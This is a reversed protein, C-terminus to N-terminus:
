FEDTQMAELALRKAFVPRNPREGLLNQCSTKIPSNAKNTVATTVIAIVAVMSM